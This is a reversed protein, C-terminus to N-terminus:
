PNSGNPTKVLRASRRAMFGIVTSRSISSTTLRVSTAISLCAERRRRRELFESIDQETYRRRPRKKGRGVNIYAIEGDQVFATLQEETIGLRQATEPHTLLALQPSMLYYAKMQASDAKGAMLRTM